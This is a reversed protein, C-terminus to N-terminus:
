PEIEYVSKTIQGDISEKADIAAWIVVGAWMILMVAMVGAVIRVIRRRIRLDKLIEATGTNEVYTAAITQPDGFHNKLQTIDADPNQELYAEVCNQIQGIIQKRLKRSCPLWSNIAKYYRKLAPDNIKM